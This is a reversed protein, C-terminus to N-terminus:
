SKIREDNAYVAYGLVLIVIVTGIIPFHNLILHLHASNPM